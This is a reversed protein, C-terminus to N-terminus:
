KNLTLTGFGWDIETSDPTEKVAFKKGKLSNHWKIQEASMVVIPRKEPMNLYKSIAKCHEESTQSGIIVVKSM